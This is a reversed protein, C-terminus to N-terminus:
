PAKSDPACVAMFHDVSSFNANCFACRVRGSDDVHYAPAQARLPANTQMALRRPKPERRGLLPHPAGNALYSHRKRACASRVVADWVLWSTGRFSAHGTPMGPPHRSFTEFAVSVVEAGVPSGCANYDYVPLLALANKGGAGTDPLLMAHQETADGNDNLNKWKVTVWSMTGPKPRVIVRITTPVHQKGFVLLRVIPGDGDDLYYHRHAPQEKIAHRADELSGFTQSFDPLCIPGAAKRPCDHTVLADEDVWCGFRCACM